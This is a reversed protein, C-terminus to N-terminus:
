HFKGRHLSTLAERATTLAAQKNEFILAQLRDFESDIFDDPAELRKLAGLYAALKEDMFEDIQDAIRDMAEELTM